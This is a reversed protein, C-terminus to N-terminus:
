SRIALATDRRYEGHFGRWHAVSFALVVMAGAQHALAWDFPVQNVLTVIGLLAQVGVLGFIVLGRNAHPTAPLRIALTLWQVIALAFLLYANMRHLFQVAKINEFANVWLPKMVTLGDPVIAGDILPWTNFALGADLGAMLAGLYIQLLAVFVLLGAMRSGFTGPMPKGTHPFLGRWVWVIAAFILSAVTLHVALRYQSVDVRKSLGSAVMWWGIAGQFGGLFLLGLLPLKLRRELRGTLWFFLLPLGFLVGVSRAILRHAWEWWFIGKFADVTMDKNIQSYEPIQQYLRFEEAWDADSLPPIVGHIPKWETISLGSDTLRTAGGVLVLAFIALLVLGLWIRVAHRNRDIREIQKFVKSERDIASDTM